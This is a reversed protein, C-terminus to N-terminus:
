CWLTLCMRWDVNQGCWCATGGISRPWVRRGFNLEAGSKKFTNSLVQCETLSSSHETKEGEGLRDERMGQIMSINAPKLVGSALLAQYIEPAPQPRASIYQAQHGRQGGSVQYSRATSMRGGRGQGQGVSDAEPPAPTEALM